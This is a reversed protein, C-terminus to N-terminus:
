KEGGQDDRYIHGSDDLYWGKSTCSICLKTSGQYPCSKHCALCTVTPNAEFKPFGRIADIFGDFVETMSATRAAYDILRDATQAFDDVRPTVGFYILRVAGSYLNLLSTLSLILTAPNDDKRWFLVNDQGIGDVRYRMMWQGVSKLEQQHRDPQCDTIGDLETSHAHFAENEPDLCRTDGGEKFHEYCELHSCHNVANASTRSYSAQIEQDAWEEESIERCRNGQDCEDCAGCPQTPQTPQGLAEGIDDITEITADTAATITAHNEEFLANSKALVEEARKIHGLMTQTTAALKEAAELVSPQKPKVGFAIDHARCERCQNTNEGCWRRDDDNLDDDCWRCHTAHTASPQAQTATPQMPQMPQAGVNKEKKSM